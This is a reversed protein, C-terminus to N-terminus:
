WCVAKLAEPKTTGEHISLFYLLSVGDGKIDTKRCRQQAMVENTGISQRTSHSGFGVSMCARSTLRGSADQHDVVPGKAVAMLDTMRRDAEVEQLQLILRALIRVNVAEQLRPPRVM